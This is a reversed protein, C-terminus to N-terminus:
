GLVSVVVDLAKLPMIIKDFGLLDRINLYNAMLTKAEPLNNASRIILEYHDNKEPILILVSADGVLGALAKAM